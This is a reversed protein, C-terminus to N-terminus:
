PAPCSVLPTLPAFDWMSLDLADYDALGTELATRIQALTQDLKSGAAGGSEAVCLFKAHCCADITECGPAAPGVAALAADGYLPVGGVLVLRVDRPTAALLADWPAAADGGIVMLDAKKGVEISGIAASLGLAAAANVTVMEVLDQANLLDGWEADDVRDAFRLEDLLNASGGLSWDPALAVNIGKALALPIDTTAALDTGAGYLFVNSRPSWVLSMGASAMRTLEADGLATGHVIATEPAYLCDDTTTITGLRAFEARATADTGEGIHIVYATTDGDAFNACVGDAAAATPFLTAVQIADDGLDNSSQDVTRALSGYCARNAPNAAGLVSTTGAVLAKLEGYKNMECGLDAPSAGEGNLYQKADVMAGYRDENTWMDHNTYARLPSWDTGDFIDFLIHNHADILGPFILGRTEVIAAGSAGPAEACSAAACAITDGTVLVEGAFATTPTVVTGRLLLAPTTGATVSPPPDPLPPCGGPDGDPAGADAAGGDGDGADAIGADPAGGADPADGGGDDGCAAVVLCIAAFARSLARMAGVM